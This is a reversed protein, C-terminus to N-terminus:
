GPNRAATCGCIQDRASAPPSQRRGGAEFGRGCFWWRGARNRDLRGRGCRCRRSGSVRIGVCDVFGRRSEAFICHGAEGVPPLYHNRLRIVGGEAAAAASGAGGPLTTAGGAEPVPVRGGGCGNDFLGLYHFWAGTASRRYLLTLLVLTGFFSVPAVAGQSVGRGVSFPTITRDDLPHPFRSVVANGWSIRGPAARFTASPFPRGSPRPSSFALHFSRRPPRPPFVGPL